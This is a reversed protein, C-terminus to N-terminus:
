CQLLLMAIWKVLKLEQMWLDMMKMLPLKM